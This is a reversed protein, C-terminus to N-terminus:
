GSRDPGRCLRQGTCGGHLGVVRECVHQRDFGPDGLGGTPQARVDAPQRRASLRDDDVPRRGRDEGLMRRHPAVDSPVDRRIGLANCGHALDAAHEGTHPEGGVFPDDDAVIVDPVVLVRQPTDNAREVAGVDNTRLVVELRQGPM